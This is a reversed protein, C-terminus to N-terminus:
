RAPFRVPLSEPLFDLRLAEEVWARWATLDSDEFVVGCLYMPQRGPLRRYWRLRARRPLVPLEPAALAFTVASPASFPQAIRFCAGGCTVDLLKASGSVDQNEITWALDLEVDFRKCKRVDDIM